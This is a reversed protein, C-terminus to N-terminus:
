VPLFLQRFSSNCYMDRGERGECRNTLIFNCIFGRDPVTRYQSFDPPQLLLVITRPLSYLVRLMATINRKFARPRADGQEAGCSYSCVDNGGLQVTVLKWQRHQAQVGALRRVLQRAQGVAGGAWDGSVAM